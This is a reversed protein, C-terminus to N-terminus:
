VGTRPANVDLELESDEDLSDLELLVTAPLDLELGLESSALDEEEQELPLELLEVTPAFDLELADQLELELEM